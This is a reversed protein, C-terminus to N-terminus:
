NFFITAEVIPLSYVDWPPNAIVVGTPGRGSVGKTAPGAACSGDEDPCRSVRVHLRTSLDPDPSPPTGGDELRDHVMM